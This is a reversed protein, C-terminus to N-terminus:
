LCHMCGLSPSTEPARTYIYGHRDAAKAFALELLLKALLAHKPHFANKIIWSLHRYQYEEWALDKRMMPMLAYPRSICDWGSLTPCYSEAGTNMPLYYRSYVHQIIGEPTPM